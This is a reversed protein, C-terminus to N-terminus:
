PYNRATNNKLSKGQGILLISRDECWKNANWKGQFLKNDFFMNELKKPDFSKANTRKLNNISNLIEKKSYRNDKQLEQIYTPHINHKAAVKYFNSKGWKYRKKM